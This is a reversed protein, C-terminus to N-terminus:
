RLWEINLLHGWKNWWQFCNKIESKECKQEYALHIYKTSQPWYNGWCNRSSMRLMSFTGTSEFLCLLPTKSGLWIFNFNKSELRCHFGRFPLMCVKHATAWVHPHVPPSLFTPNINEPRLLGLTCLEVSVDLFHVSAIVNEDFCGAM